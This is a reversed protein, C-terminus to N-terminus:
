MYLFNELAWHGEKISAQSLNVNRLAYLSPLQDKLTGRILYFAYATFHVPSERKM